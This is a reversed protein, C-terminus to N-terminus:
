GLVVRRRRAEGAMEEGIATALQDDQGILVVDPQRVLDFPDGRGQSPPGLRPEDEAVGLQDVAIAPWQSAVEPPCDAEARVM